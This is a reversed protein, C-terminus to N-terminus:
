ALGILIKLINSLAEQQAQYANILDQTKTKMYNVANEMTITVDDIDTKLKFTDVNSYGYKSLSKLDQENNVIFNKFNTLHQKVINYEYAYEDIATKMQNVESTTLQNDKIANNLANVWDNYLDTMKKSDSNFLNINSNYENVLDKIRTPVNTQTGWIRETTATDIVQGHAQDATMGYFLYGFIGLLILIGFFGVLLLLPGKKSLKKKDISVKESKTKEVLEVLKGGCDSCFTKNEPYEKKCKKCYKM